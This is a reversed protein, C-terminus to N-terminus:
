KLIKYAKVGHPPVESVVKDSVKKSEKSFVDTITVEGAIGLEDLSTKLTLKNESINFQALYVNKNEDDVSTWVAYNKTRVLERVNSGHKVMRLLDTNTMLGLTWEDNYVMDGGFMLPSRFICWLAMLTMQEDKTFRTYRDGHHSRIGIRGLPLMDCDPWAGITRRENWMSCLEFTDYLQKWNDWFDDSMRWMNAHNILHQAEGIPAAGPSLSLVIPRGTKDIAKRILETEGKRYPRSIDDVKIYDVGWEAYLSIISDYYEQAGVKNPDVGFMDTNWECYSTTDCIDACTLNTGYVPLRKLVAYRPVGRLIHIGFKLGLSHVFDALPKFGMKNASSPFRKECPMLRGYEDMVLEAFPNYIDSKANPEYWQIDVVIYEWGYEKLYKSMYLANQRVEEERVSAGYCDWSNWGLPPTPAFSHHAKM